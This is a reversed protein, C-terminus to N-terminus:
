ETRQRKRPSINNVVNAHGFIMASAQKSTLRPKRRCIARGAGSFLRELAATTGPDGPRARGLNSYTLFKCAAPAGFTCHPSMWSAMLGPLHVVRYRNLDDQVLKKLDAVEALM